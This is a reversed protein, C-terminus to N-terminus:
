FLFRGWFSFMRSNEIFCFIQGIQGVEYNRACLSLESFLQVIIDRQTLVLTLSRTVLAGAERRSDEEGAPQKKGGNKKLLLVDCDRLCVSPCKIRLQGRPFANNSMCSCGVNAALQCARHARQHGGHHTHSPALTFASSPLTLWPPTIPTLPGDGLQLRVWSRLDRQLFLFWM